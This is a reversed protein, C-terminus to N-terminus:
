APTPQASEHVSRIGRAALLASDGLQSRLVVQPGRGLADALQLWREFFPGGPARAARSDDDDLVLADSAPSSAPANRLERALAAFREGTPKVRGDNTILGLDYELPPFDPLTRSVDHSCWWTIGWLNQVTVAARVTSELFAPADNVPVVNTPSGVEQLWVPRTGDTHWAAALQALYEAHRVSGSGMAGYAQAAGNFVWSHVVTADGHRVAHEPGFPQRDDYWAADFMANTVLVPSRGLATRAVDVLTALWGDAEEPTVVHPLPHPPAAFQNVENGLTFGVLNPRNAVASALARVYDAEAAVVHPDTFMNRRHWSELWSPMFDFSSLHGQLADVNVDLGFEAAIDVVRAVDALARPRILSRAPQIVPWLPFIRVHDVGLSAVGELDRRVAEADFDLWSHFWGVSPTYNVGFRMSTM